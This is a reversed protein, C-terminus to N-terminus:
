LKRCTLEGCEWAGSGAPRDACRRGLVTPQPCCRHPTRSHKVPSSAMRFWPRGLKRRGSFQPPFTAAECQRSDEVLLVSGLTCEWHLHLRRQDTQATASSVACSCGSRAATWVLVASREWACPKRLASCKYRTQMFTQTKLIRLTREDM